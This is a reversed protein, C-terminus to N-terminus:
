TRRSTVTRRQAVCHSIMVLVQKYNRSNLFEQEYPKSVFNLMVSYACMVTSVVDPRPYQLGGRDLEKILTYSSGFYKDSVLGSHYANCKLKKLLKYVCYGALYTLVPIVPELDRLYKEGLTSSHIIESLKVTSKEEYADSIDYSKMEILGYKSSNLVLPLSDQLRLNAECEFVQRVSTNYQSGALMRYKAFREELPDTQIKGPLFCSFNLEAMCYKALELIAHTTHTLTLMNELFEISGNGASLTLPQMYMDKLRTGKNPHRVNMIKWWRLIIEIYVKTGKYTPLNRKEGLESLAATVYESFVQVLKVNQKELNTRNLAKIAIGYGFKVLSQSESSHLKKLDDFSATGTEHDLIDDFQPFFM